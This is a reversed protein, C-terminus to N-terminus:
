VRSNASTYLLLLAGSSLPDDSVNCHTGDKGIFTDSLSPDGGAWDLM